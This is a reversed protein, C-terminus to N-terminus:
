FAEQVTLYIGHNGREGFGVDFALNTKSRKNLLLRLGGGAGSAFHDFLQEGQQRNAVTTTNVFWVMGLLGNRTLTARYEAEVFALKEGRFHGEAYGRGSRGYPDSGTAPLDFYPAVGTLVLDAYTWLALQQRRDPSLPAYARGDLTLRDWRSDGGLFGDFLARYTARGFWGHSPNIFSDRSDWIIEASVGASTQADLPLGNASTYQYYSSEPWTSPADDAPRIDAHRDFLVGGGVFLDNRLRDHVVQHLRYFNFRAVDGPPSETNTGLAFTELSTWQFRYDGEFRWHDDSGFMTTHASIGAQKHSTVTASAVTSSISTTAPDGRFFAVNGAVGAIIGTSPKAGVVPAIARMRKPEDASDAAPADDKRLLQRIM